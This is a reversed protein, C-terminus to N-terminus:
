QVAALANITGWGFSGHRQPYLSASQKLKELVQSRTWAPNKSWVLAAIGAATATAVSSGGVTSPQSGSMTLTLPHKSDGDREMVITFDVQEGAHCVDCTAYSSGAKIGTVAVTEDMWAPFIVGFWTTFDTSTGAACFILKDKGYAYRIADAVKSNSIIDGLSMSIVRVDSRNALAILANAVGTKESGGNVIVDGTARYAILNCNYAVGVSAGSASRPSAITGAMATGHGCRDNPGDVSAWPWWSSVYTGYREVFRGSSEGTNFENGLMSQNPSIGTDILGVTVGRGTSYNWAQEIKMYSYNWPVKANPGITTFDLAPIAFDPDNSCGSDSATRSQKDKENVVLHQQVAYSSPEVYRVTSMSRLQRVVDISSIKMEIYPLISHEFFSLRKGGPQGGDDLTTFIEDIVNQKAKQWSQNQIDIESIRSSIENELAPKYGITLMSDSHVLASWLIEDSAMNWDFEKKANLSTLIYDDIQSRPILTPNQRTISRENEVPDTCRLLLICAILLLAIKKM